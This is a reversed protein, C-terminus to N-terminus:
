ERNPERTYHGNNEKLYKVLKSMIEVCDEVYRIMTLPPVASEGYPSAIYHVMKGLCAKLVDCRKQIDDLDPVM